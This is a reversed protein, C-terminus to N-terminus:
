GVRCNWLRPRQQHNPPRPSRRKRNQRNALPVTPPKAEPLRTVVIKWDRSLDEVPKYILGGHWIRHQSHDHYETSESGFVERITDRIAKQVADVKADDFAIELSELQRTEEIRFRLRSIAHEIDIGVSQTSITSTPETPHRSAM